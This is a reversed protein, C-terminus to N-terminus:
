VQVETLEGEWRRMSRSGVEVEVKARARWGATARASERSRRSQEGPTSARIIGGDRAENM